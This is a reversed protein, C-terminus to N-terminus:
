QVYYYYHQDHHLRWQKGQQLQQMFCSNSQVWLMYAFSSESCTLCAMRWTMRHFVFLDILSALDCTKTSETFYFVWQLDVIDSSLRSPDKGKVYFVIDFYRLM